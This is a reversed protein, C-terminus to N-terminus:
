YHNTGRNPDFSLPTNIKAISSLCLHALTFKGTIVAIRLEGTSVNQDPILIHIEKFGRSDLYSHIKKTVAAITDSTIPLGLSPTILDAFDKTNLAPIDMILIKGNNDPFKLAKVKVETDAIILRKLNFIAQDNPSHIALEKLILGTEAFVDTACCLLM